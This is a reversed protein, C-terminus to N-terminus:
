RTTVAVSVNPDISVFLWAVLVAVNLLVSVILVATAVDKGTSMVAVTENEITEIAQPTNTNTENVM